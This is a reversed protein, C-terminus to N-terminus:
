KMKKCSRRAAQVPQHPADPLFDSLQAAQSTSKPNVMVVLFSSLLVVVSIAVSLQISPQNWASLTFFIFSYWLVLILLSVMYSGFVQASALGLQSGGDETVWDACLTWGESFQQISVLDDDTDCFAILHEKLNAYLHQSAQQLEQEHPTQYSKLSTFLHWLYDSHLYGDRKRDLAVFLCQADLRMSDKGDKSLGYTPQMSPQGFATAGTLTTTLNVPAPHERAVQAQENWMQEVDRRMWTMLVNALDNKFKDSAKKLQRYKAAGTYMFAVVATGYPLYMATDLASAMILWECVMLILAIIWIWHLMLLYSFAKAYYSRLWVFETLYSIGIRITTLGLMVVNTWFLVSAWVLTSDLTFKWDYSLLHHWQLPEKVALTKAWAEQVQMIYCALGVSPGLLVLIHVLVVVIEFWYYQWMRHTNPSNKPLLQVGRNFYKNRDKMRVGLIEQIRAPTVDMVLPRRDYWEQFTPLFCRVSGVPGLSHVAEPLLAEVQILDTPDNTIQIYQEVFTHLADELDQPVFGPPPQIPGVPWPSWWKLGVLHPSNIEFTSISYKEKLIDAVEDPKKAQLDNLVCFDMYYRMFSDVTVPQATPILSGVVPCRDLNLASRGSRRDKVLQLTVYEATFVHVSNLIRQRLPMVVLLMLMGLPNEFPDAPGFRTVSAKPAKYHDRRHYKYQQAQRRSDKTRWMRMLKWSAHKKFGRLALVAAVVAFIGSVVFALFAVIPFDHFSLPVMVVKSGPYRVPFHYMVTQEGTEIYVLSDAANTNPAQGRLAISLQDYITELRARQNAYKGDPGPKLEDSDCGGAHFHVRYRVEEPRVLGATFMQILAPHLWLFISHTTYVWRGGPVGPTAVVDIAIFYKQDTNLRGKLGQQLMKTDHLLLRLGPHPNYITVPQSLKQLTSYPSNSPLAVTLVVQGGLSQLDSILVKSPAHHAPRTFHVETQCGPSLSTLNFSRMSRQFAAVTLVNPNFSTHSPWKQPDFIPHFLKWVLPECDSVFPCERGCCMSGLTSLGSLLEKRDVHQDKDADFVNAVAQWAETSNCLAWPGNPAHHVRHGAASALCVHRDTSRYNAAFPGAQIIDTLWISNFESTISVKGQFETKWLWASGTSLRVDVMGFLLTDGIRVDMSPCAGAGEPSACVKLTDLTVNQVDLTIYPSRDGHNQVIRLEQLPDSSSITVTVLCLDRCRQLYANKCGHPNYVDLAHTTNAGDRMHWTAQTYTDIGSVTVHPSFGYVVDVDCATLFVTFLDTAYPREISISRNPLNIVAFWFCLIVLVVLMCVARFTQKGVPTEPGKFAGKFGARSAKNPSSRSGNDGSRHPKSEEPDADVLKYLGQKSCQSHKRDKDDTSNKETCDPRNIFVCSDRREPERNNWTKDDITTMTTMGNVKSDCSDQAMDLLQLNTISAQPRHREM